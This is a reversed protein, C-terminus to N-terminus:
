EGFGALRRVLHDLSRRMAKLRVAFHQSYGVVVGLPVNDDAHAPLCRTAQIENTVHLRCQGLRPLARRPQRQNLFSLGAGDQGFISRLSGQRLPHPQQRVERGSPLPRDGANARRVLLPIQARQELRLDGPDDGTLVLGPIGGPLGLRPKLREALTVVLDVGQVAIGQGAAIRETDTKKGNAAKKPQNIRNGCLIHLVAKSQHPRGTVMRQAVAGHPKAQEVRHRNGGFIHLASVQCFFYQDHIPIHMM